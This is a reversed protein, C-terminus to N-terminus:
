GFHLVTDAEATRLARTERRLHMDQAQIKEDGGLIARDHHAFPQPQCHDQHKGVRKRQGIRHTHGRPQNTGHTRQQQCHSDPLTVRDTFRRQVSQTDNRKGVLPRQQKSGLLQRFCHHPNGVYKQKQDENFLKRITFGMRKTGRDPQLSGGGHREPEVICQRYNPRYRKHQGGYHITRVQRKGSNAAGRGTIARYLLDGLAYGDPIWAQEMNLVYGISLGSSMCVNDHNSKVNKRFAYVDIPSDIAKRSINASPVTLRQLLSYNFMRAPATDPDLYVTNGGEEGQLRVSPLAKAVTKATSFKDYELFFTMDRSLDCIILPEGKASESQKTHALIDNIPRQVQQEGNENSFTFTLVSGFNYKEPMYIEFKGNRDTFAQVPRQLQDLDNVSCLFGSLQVLIGNLTYREKDTSMVARGRIIKPLGIADPLNLAKLGKSIAEFTGVVEKSSIEDDTLAYLHCPAPQDSMDLAFNSAPTYVRYIRDDPYRKGYEHAAKIINELERATPPQTKGTIGSMESQYVRQISPLDNATLSTLCDSSPINDTATQEQCIRYIGITHLAAILADDMRTVNMKTRLNALNSLKYQQPRLLKAKKIYEKLKEETPYVFSDLQSTSLSTVIDLLTKCDCIALDQVNRVGAQAILWAEDASIGDIRWLDAQRLWMNVQQLTILQDNSLKKKDKQAVHKQKEVISDRVQQRKEPTDCRTLLTAVDYIQLMELIKHIGRSIGKIPILSGGM